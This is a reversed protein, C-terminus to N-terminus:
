VSKGLFFEFVVYELNNMLARRIFSRITSASLIDIIGGLADVMIWNWPLVQNILLKRGRFWNTEYYGGIVGSCPQVCNKEDDCDM